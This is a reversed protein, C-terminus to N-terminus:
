QQRTMTMPMAQLGLRDAPKEAAVAGKDCARLLLPELESFELEEEDGDEYVVHFFGTNADYAKVIGGYVASGFAKKLKRGVADRQALRM